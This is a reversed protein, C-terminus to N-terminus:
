PRCSCATGACPPARCEAARPLSEPSRFERALGVRRETANIRGSECGNGAAVDHSTMLVRASLERYTLGEHERKSLWRRVQAREVM